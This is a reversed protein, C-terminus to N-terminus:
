NRRLMNQFIEEFGMYIRNAQCRPELHSQQSTYFKTHLDEVVEACKSQKEIKIM